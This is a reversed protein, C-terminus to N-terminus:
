SEHGYKVTEYKLSGKEDGGVVRLTVTSTNSGTEVRTARFKRERSENYLRPVYMSRCYVYIVHDGDLWDIPADTPNVSFV